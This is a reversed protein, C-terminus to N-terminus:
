KILCVHLKRWIIITPMAVAITQITTNLSNNSVFLGWNQLCTSICFVSESLFVCVICFSVAVTYTTRDM